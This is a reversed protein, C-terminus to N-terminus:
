HTGPPFYHAYIEGLEPRIDEGNVDPNLGKALTLSYVLIQAAMAAPFLGLVRPQNTSPIEIIEASGPWFADPQDTVVVLNAESKSVGQAIGVAKELSRDDTQFLIVGTHSRFSASPGHTFEELPFSVANEGVVELIKLGIEVANAVQIGFGTLMYQSTKKSLDHCIRKTQAEWRASYSRLEEVMKRADLIFTEAQRGGHTQMGTLMGLLATSLYTRTKGLPFEKHFPDSVALDANIALRSTPNASIGVTFANRELSKEQALCTMLSKGSESISIVMSKENLDPPTDQLFDYADVAQAPIGLTKQLAYAVALCSNYSTGCGVAFFRDPKQKRLSSQVPEILQESLCADLCDPIDHIADTMYYPPKTRLVGNPFKAKLKELTM